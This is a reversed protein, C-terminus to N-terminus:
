IVSILSCLESHHETASVSLVCSSYLACCSKILLDPSNSFAFLSNDSVFPNNAEVILFNASLLCTINYNVQMQAFLYVSMDCTHIHNSYMVQIKAMFIVSISLM